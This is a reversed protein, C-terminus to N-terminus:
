CEVCRDRLGLYLQTEFATLHILLLSFEQFSNLDLIVLDSTEFELQSALVLHM